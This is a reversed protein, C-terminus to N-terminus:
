DRVVAAIKEDHAIGEFGVVFFDVLEEGFWPRNTVVFFSAFPMLSVYPLPAVPLPSRRPLQALKLEFSGLSFFGFIM